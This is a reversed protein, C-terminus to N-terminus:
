DFYRFRPRMLKKFVCGVQPETVRNTKKTKNRTPKTEKNQNQTYTKIKHTKNTKDKKKVLSTTAETNDEFDM